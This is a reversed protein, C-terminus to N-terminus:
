LDETWQSNLKKKNAKYEDLAMMNAEYDNLYRTIKRNNSFAKVFARTTEVVKMCYYKNGNQCLAWFKNKIDELTEGEDSMLTSVRQNNIVFYTGYAEVFDKWWGDKDSTFITEKFKDTVALKTLNLFYDNGNKSIYKPYAIVHGERILKSLMKEWSIGTPQEERDYFQFRKYYLDSLELISTNEPFENRNYITYLLLFEEATLNTNKLYKLYRNLEIM